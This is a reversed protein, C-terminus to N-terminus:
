SCRHSNNKRYVLSCRDLDNILTLTITVVCLQHNGSISANDKCKEPAVFDNAPAAELAGSLRALANLSQQEAASSPVFETGGRSSSSSISSANANALCKSYDKGLSRRFHEEIDNACEVTM